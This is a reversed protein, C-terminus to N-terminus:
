PARTEKALEDLLIHFKGSSRIAERLHGHMRHATEEEVNRRLSGLADRTADTAVM